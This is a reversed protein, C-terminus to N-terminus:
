NFHGRLLQVCSNNEFQIFEFVFRVHDVLLLSHTCVDVCIGRPVNLNVSVCSSFRYMHTFWVNDSSWLHILFPLFVIVWFKGCEWENNMRM